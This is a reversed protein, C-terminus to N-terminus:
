CQQFAETIFHNMYEKGYEENMHSGDPEKRSGSRLSKPNTSFSFETNLPDALTSPPQSVLRTNSIGIQQQMVESLIHMPVYDALHAKDVVDVRQPKNGLFLPVDSISRIEAALRYGISDRLIDRCTAVIAAATVGVPIRPFRIGLSYILIAEASKIPIARLGGSTIAINKELFPTSPVLRDDDLILDKMTDTTSDFFTFKIAQQKKSISDWARKLSGTHSDGIIFCNM